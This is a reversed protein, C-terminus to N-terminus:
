QAEILAVQTATVALATGAPLTGATVAGVIADASLLVTPLAAPTGVVTVPLGAPPTVLTGRLVLLGSADIRVTAGSPASWDTTVVFRTDAGVYWQRSRLPAPSQCRGLCHTYGAHDPALGVVVDGSLELNLAGADGVAAEDTIAGSVTLRKPIVPGGISTDYHHPAVLPVSAPVCWPLLVALAALMATRASVM